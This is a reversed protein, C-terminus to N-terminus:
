VKLVLWYYDSALITYHLISSPAVASLLISVMVINRDLQREAQTGLEGGAQMKDHKDM